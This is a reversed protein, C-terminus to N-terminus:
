LDEKPLNRLALVAWQLNNRWETPAEACKLTMKLTRNVRKIMGQAQPHYATNHHLQAGLISGFDEYPAQLNLGRDCYIYM